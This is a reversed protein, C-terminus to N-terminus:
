GVIGAGMLIADRNGHVAKDRRATVYLDGVERGFFHTIVRVHWQDHLLDGREDYYAFQRTQTEIEEQLVYGYIWGAAETLASDFSDDSSFTTGKMGASIVAKLVSPKDGMVTRWYDAQGARKDILITRPIHRRLTELSGKPIQSLLIAELIPDQQDNRLVAM